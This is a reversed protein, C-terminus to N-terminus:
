GNGSGPRENSQALQARVASEMRTSQAETESIKQTLNHHGHSAWHEKLDHRLGALKVEAAIYERIASWLPENMEVGQIVSCRKGLESVPTTMAERILKVMSQEHSATVVGCAEGYKELLDAVRDAPESRSKSEETM